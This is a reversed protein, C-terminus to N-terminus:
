DEVVEVEVRVNKKANVSHKDHIMRGGGWGKVAVRDAAINKSILWERIVEAREKSLEKSSGFGEKVNGNLSFFDKSEGMTIIKGNSNGNTHGHLVIKADPKEEMMTLLSNLESLSEPLMIAADNYFYVNYMTAVDGKQMRVLDFEILIFNGFMEKYADSERTIQDKYNIEKQAKRYGFVEAVLTIKGSKSKPDPLTLYDNGKVKKMIANRDVDIVQVDGEVVKNNRANFLSIFVPTNGLSHPMKVPDMKPQVGVEEDTLLHSSVTVMEQPKSPETSAELVPTNEAAKRPESVSPIEEKAASEKETRAVEYKEVMGSKLVRVWAGGFGADKRAKLMQDVSENFEGYRDLFVFYMKKSDDYGYSAHLEGNRANIDNAYKDAFTEQGARYAAVVVYYGAPLLKQPQIEQALLRVGIILFLALSLRIKM